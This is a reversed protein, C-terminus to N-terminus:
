FRITCIFCVREEENFIEKARFYIRAEDEEVNDNGVEVEEADGGLEELVAKGMKEPGKKGLASIRPVSVINM